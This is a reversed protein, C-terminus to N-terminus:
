SIRIDIPNSPSQQDDITFTLAMAGPPADPLVRVWASLASTSGGAQMNLEVNECTLRQGDDSLDGRYTRPSHRGYVTLEDYAFRLGKRAPLIVTVTQPPLPGEGVNQVWVNAAGTQGPKLRVLDTNRVM